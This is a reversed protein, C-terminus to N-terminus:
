CSQGHTLKPVRPHRMGVQHPLVCVCPTAEFMTSASDRLNEGPPCKVWGLYAGPYVQLRAVLVCRRNTSIVIFVVLVPQIVPPGHNMRSKEFLIM